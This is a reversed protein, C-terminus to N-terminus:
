PEQSGAYNAMIKAAVSVFVRMEEEGVGETLMADYHEMSSVIHAVMEAGEESLRLMVIRRDDRLRRRRILGKEVLGTVLRSIRAGDVPLVQALQTATCEGELCNKLLNFELPTLGYPSVEQAMGKEVANVLGAVCTELDVPPSPTGRGPGDHPEQTTM